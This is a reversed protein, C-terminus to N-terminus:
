SRLAEDILPSVIDAWDILLRKFYEAVEAPRFYMDILATPNKFSWDRISDQIYYYVPYNGDSRVKLAPRQLTVAGKWKKLDAQSLGPLRENENGVWVGIYASQGSNNNGLIVPFRGGWTKKGMTLPPCNNMGNGLLSFEKKFEWTQGLKLVLESELKDAFRRIAIRQIEEFSAAVACAIELYEEKEFVHEVV